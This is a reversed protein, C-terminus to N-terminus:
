IGITLQKPFIPMEIVNILNEAFSKLHPDHSYICSAGYEIATAVIAFDFKMKDKRINNEKRFHQFDSYKNHMLEACKSAVRADFNGIIFKNKFIELYKSHTDLPEPMLIETIVISPIIVDFKNKDLYEFFSEAREIMHVQSDSSTKKLGWVIINSDICVRM